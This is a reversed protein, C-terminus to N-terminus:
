DNTKILIVTFTLSMVGTKRSFIIEQNYMIIYLNKNDLIRKKTYTYKTKKHLCVLFFFQFNKTEELTM